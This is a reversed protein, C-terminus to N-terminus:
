SKERNSRHITRDMELMRKLTGTAMRLKQLNNEQFGQYVERLNDEFSKLTQIINAEDEPTLVGRRDKDSTLHVYDQIIPLVKRFQSLFRHARRIDEPDEDFNRFIKGSLECVNLVCQRIAASPIAPTWQRMEELQRRHHNIQTSLQELSAATGVVLQQVSNQVVGGLLLNLGLYILATITLCLWLPWALVMLTSLFSSAGALGALLEAKKADM